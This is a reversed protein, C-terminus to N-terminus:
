HSTQLRVLVHDVDVPVDGLREVLLFETIQVHAV